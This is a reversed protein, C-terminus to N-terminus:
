QLHHRSRQNEERSEPHKEVIQRRNYYVRIPASRYFAALRDRVEWDSRVAHAAEWRRRRVVPGLQKVAGLLAQLPLLDGVLARSLVVWPLMGAHRLLAGPAHLNIWHFLLRNRAAVYEVYRDRFRPGITASTRHWVRSRPEYRVEWGRKWARYCVDVDEWHFPSLLEEFGGLAELFCRRYTSFGGVSYVSLLRREEIWPKGAVPDVDYNFFVRWFGARFLGYRGGVALVSSNWEYAKAGVAFVEPDAFHLSKFYLYDSAVRVDNNLLAIWAHRAARFGANCARAFGQNEPLSVMRVSPFKRGLREVTGDSSGDDVVIVEAPAQRWARYSEVAQLISPLNERLLSWGNWSPIVVSISLDAGESPARDESGLPASLM